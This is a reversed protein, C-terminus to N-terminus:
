LDNLGRQMWCTRARSVQHIPLLVLTLVGLTRPVLLFAFIITFFVPIHNFNVSFIYRGKKVSYRVLKFQKYFVKKMGLM